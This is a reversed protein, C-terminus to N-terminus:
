IKEWKWEKMLYNKYNLFATQMEAITDHGFKETWAQALGIALMAESIVAAAPVACIDSREVGAKEEKWEQINVSTLPKYLTPIPKMYARLWLAAGNSVGGEIGGARNSSRYITNNASLRIEDHAQSGPLFANAIGEGIEVGKIAPIGMILATLRADLRQEWSSYSGLGPPLGLAGTEFVGGLSEGANKATDIQITMEEAATPNGCRVPSKDILEMNTLHNDRNMALPETMVTGIAIVQSYIHISFNALLQRCIAGIAVRAATERASARELVNRIDKHRYKIAGALDAHGPRPRTVAATAETEMSEIPMIKEWNDHDKNRIVFSIPSGITCGYRIGSLVEIQDSEIIMRGGRGYGAQRRQLQQNIDSISINLGSPLGEIIGTLAPGHSEGATLIKLM